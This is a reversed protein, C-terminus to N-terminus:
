PHQWPLLMTPTMTNRKHHENSTGLKFFVAKFNKSNNKISHQATKTSGDIADDSKRMQMICFRSYRWFSFRYALFFFAM